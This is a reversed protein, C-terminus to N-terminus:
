RKRLWSRKGHMDICLYLIYSYRIKLLASEDNVMVSTQRWKGTSSAQSLDLPDGVGAVVIAEATDTAPLVFDGATPVSITGECMYLGNDPLTSFPSLILLSWIHTENRHTTILLRQDADADMAIGNKKWLFQVTAGSNEGLQALCQLRLTRGSRLIEEGSSILMMTTNPKPVARVLPPFFM